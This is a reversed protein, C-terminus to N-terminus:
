AFDWAEIVTVPAGAPGDFSNSNVNIAFVADPAPVSREQQQQQQKNAAYAQNLFAMAEANKVSEDELRKVRAEIDGGGPSAKNVLGEASEKFRPQGPDQQCAAVTLLAFALLKTM